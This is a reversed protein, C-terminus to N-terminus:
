RLRPFSSATTRAGSPRRSHDLFNQVEDLVDYRKVAKAQRRDLDHNGPIVFVRSLHSDGLEQLLPVLFEKEFVEFEEVHGKNALDGTIFVFDPKRFAKSVVAVESLIHDIIRAQAYQDKGVHFDSLHLWTLDALEMAAHQWDLGPTALPM